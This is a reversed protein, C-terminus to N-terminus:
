KIGLNIAMFSLLAMLFMIRYFSPLGISRSNCYTISEDIGNGIVFGYDIFVTLSPLGISRSHCSM